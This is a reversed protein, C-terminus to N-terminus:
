ASRDHRHPGRRGAIRGLLEGWMPRRAARWVTDGEELGLRRRLMALWLPRRIERWAAESEADADPSAAGAYTAEVYRHVLRRVPAAVEPLQAGLWEARQYPTASEAM